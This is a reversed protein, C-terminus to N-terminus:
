VGVSWSSYTLPPACSCSVSASNEMSDGVCTVPTCVVGLSEAEVLCRIFPLADVPDILDGDGRFYVPFLGIALPVGAESPGLVGLGVVPM